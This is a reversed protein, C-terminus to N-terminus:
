QPRASIRWRSSRTGGSMSPRSSCSRLRGHTTAMWDVDDPLANVEIDRVVHLGQNTVWLRGIDGDRSLDPSVASRVRDAEVQEQHRMVARVTRERLLLMLAGVAGIVAIASFIVLLWVPAGVGQALGAGAAFLAFVGGAVNRRFALDEAARTSDGM